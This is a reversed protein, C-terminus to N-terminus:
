GKAVETRLKALARSIYRKVSDKKIGMVGSIEEIGMGKRYKLHLARMESDNLSGSAAEFVQRTQEANVMSDEPSEQVLSSGMNRRYIGIHENYYRFKQYTDRIFHLITKYLYGRVNEIDRPVERLTLVIFLDQYIDEVLDRDATKLYLISRIFDGHEEFLCSIYGVKDDAAFKEQEIVPMAAYFFRHTERLDNAPQPGKGTGSFFYRM